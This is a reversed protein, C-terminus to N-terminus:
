KSKFNVIKKMTKASLIHEIKCADEEATKPDVKLVNILFGMLSKHRSYVMKAVEKGSQTLTIKGYKEQTVLNEDKLTNVARNVSAKSLSLAKSINTIGTSGGDKESLIYIIELYDELSATLNKM